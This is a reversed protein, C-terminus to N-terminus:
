PKTEDDSLPGQAPDIGPGGATLSAGDIGAGEDEALNEPHFGDLVVGVGVDDDNHVSLSEDSAAEHSADEDEGAALRGDKVVAGDFRVAGPVELLAGCASCKAQQAPNDSRIRREDIDEVGPGYDEAIRRRLRLSM